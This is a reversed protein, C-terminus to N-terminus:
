SRPLSLPPPSPPHPPHNKKDSSFLHAGRGGRRERERVKFGHGLAPNIEVPEGALVLDWESSPLLLPSPPLPPCREPHPAPLKKKKKM